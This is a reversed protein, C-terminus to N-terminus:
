TEAEEPFVESLDAQEDDDLALPIEDGVPEVGMARYFEKRLVNVDPVAVFFVFSKATSAGSANIYKAASRRLKAHDIKLLSTFNNEHATVPGDTIPLKNSFHKHASYCIVGVFRERRSLDPMGVIDFFDLAAKRAAGELSDLHGLDSVLEYERLYQKRNALFAAASTAYEKVGASAGGALKSELFYITLAGNEFAAHIGDLGHVPMNNNTKLAMKAAVQAASLHHQTVCYALVEGLESARSPHTKNFTIFADRVANHVRATVSFDEQIAASLELRRRRPLAYYMCQAWLFEGLAVVQPEDEKFRVHLLGTRPGDGECPADHAVACALLKDVKSPNLLSSIAEGVNTGIECKLFPGGVFKSACSLLNYASPSDVGLRLM